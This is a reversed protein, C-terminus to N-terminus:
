KVHSGRALYPKKFVRCPLREFSKLWNKGLGPFRKKSTLGNDSEVAEGYNDEDIHLRVFAEAETTTKSSGKKRKGPKKINEIKNTDM